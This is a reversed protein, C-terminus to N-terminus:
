RKRHTMNDLITRMRRTKPINDNSEINDFVIDSDLGTIFDHVQLETVTRSPSVSYWDIKYGEEILLSCLRMIEDTINLPPSDMMIDIAGPHADMAERIIMELFYLYRSEPYSMNHGFRNMERSIVDPPIQYSFSDMIEFSQKDLDYFIQEREGSTTNSYKVEIRGAKNSPFQDATKRFRSRGNKPVYTAVIM